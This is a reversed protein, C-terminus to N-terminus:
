PNDKFKNSFSESAKVIKKL